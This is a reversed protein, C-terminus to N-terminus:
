FPFVLIKLFLQQNIEDEKYNQSNKNWGNQLKMYKNPAYVNLIIGNQHISVDAM